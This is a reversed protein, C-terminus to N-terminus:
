YHLSRVTNTDAVFESGPPFENKFKQFRQYLDGCVSVINESSMNELIHATVSLPKTGMYFGREHRAPCIGKVTSFDWVFVRWYHRLTM